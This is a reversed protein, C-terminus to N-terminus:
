YIVSCRGGSVKELAAEDLQELTEIDPRSSFKKKRQEDQLPKDNKTNLINKHEM